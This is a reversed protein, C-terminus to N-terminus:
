PQEHRFPDQGENAVRRPLRPMAEGGGANYWRWVLICDSVPLELSKPRKRRALPGPLFAEFPFDFFTRCSGGVIRSKRGLDAVIPAGSEGAALRPFHGIGTVALCGKAAPSKKVTRRTAAQRSTRGKVLHFTGVM